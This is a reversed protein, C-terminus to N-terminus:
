DSHSIVHNHLIFNLSVTSCAYCAISLIFFFATPTVASLIYSGRSFSSSEMKLYNRNNYNDEREKDAGIELVHNVKFQTILLIQSKPKSKLSRLKCSNWNWPEGLQQSLTKHQALAIMVVYRLYIKCITYILYRISKNNKQWTPTM